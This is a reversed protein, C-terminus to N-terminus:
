NEPSGNEIEVDALREEWKNSVRLITNIYQM